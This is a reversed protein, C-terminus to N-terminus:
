TPHGVEHLDALACLAGPYMAEPAEQWILDLLTRQVAQMQVCMPTLMQRVAEFDQGLQGCGKGCTAVAKGPLQYVM